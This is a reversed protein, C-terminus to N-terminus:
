CGLKSQFEKGSRCQGLRNGFVKLGVARAEKLCEPVVKMVKMALLEPKERGHKKIRAIVDRHRAAAGFTEEVDAHFKDPMNRM